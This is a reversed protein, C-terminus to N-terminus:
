LKGGCEGPVAEYSLAGDGGGGRRSGAAGAAGGAPLCGTNRYREIEGMHPGTYFRNDKTIYVPVPEYKDRDLAAFAQIGSIISVEHEVSRGGFLVAVKTKM